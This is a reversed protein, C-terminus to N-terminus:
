CGVEQRALNLKCKWGGLRLGLWDSWKRVIIGRKKEIRIEVVESPQHTRGASSGDYIFYGLALSTVLVSIAFPESSAHAKCFVVYRSLSTYGFPLM